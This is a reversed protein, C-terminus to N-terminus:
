RSRLLPTTYFGQVFDSCVFLDVPIKQGAASYCTCRDPTSLCAAIIPAQKPQTTVAVPTFTFAPSSSPSVPVNSFPATAAPQAVAGVVAEGSESGGFGNFRYAQVAVLSFLAFIAFAALKYRLAVPPKADTHFDASLYKQFYSKDILYPVVDGCPTKVPEDQYESWTKRLRGLGARVLHIHSNVLRRVDIDLFMPAQTAIVFDVGLHRSERLRVVSPPAEEKKRQPWVHHAEDFVFVSGPVLYNMWDAAAPYDGPPLSPCSLCTLSSCRVLKINPQVPAAWSIGHTYIVPRAKYDSHVLKAILASKGSGVSGTILTLM